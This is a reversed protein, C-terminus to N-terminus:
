ALTVLFLSCLLCLVECGRLNSGITVAQMQLKLPTIASSDYVKQLSIPKELHHRIVTM